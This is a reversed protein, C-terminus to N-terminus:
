DRKKVVFLPLFFYIALISFCLGGITGAALPYWFGEKQSGILFPVFGLITSVITLFIPIIKANWAKVYLQLSNLHPFREELNNYENIIYISANVTLGCLLIFSAFGGQDFNLKFYYFTLFVGIYSIPIVCLVAIPQKLSNFLIATTFFIIIIILFLLFYQKKEKEWSWRYASGKASYGMPLTPIFADLTKEQSKNGGVMSGIYEYQLFIRYQQDIKCVDKPAQSKEMTTIDGIKFKKNGTNMEVNMMNWLDYDSRQKSTLSVTEPEKDVIIQGAYEDKGFIPNIGAFLEMPTIDANALLERDPTLIFEQYDDKWYSMQSNIFVEKIRRHELLMKKLTEAHSYLEDYNYGRMEVSYNGATERVDNSFGQDKLGYVGWSGGGLTLAHSVVGSKLVYPFNSNEFEPKFFVSISARNPNYVSTQFQKIEKYESLYAEMKQVLRNMQELTTGNPMNAYISLVLEENRTFYSGEYVKKVFLRLAGGTAPDLVPRIKDKYFGSGITKNYLEAYPKKEDLKEPLLFLPLGFALLLLIIVAVRFRVLFRITKAYILTFYVPLRKNQMWSFRKNRIKTKRHLSLDIKEILSPVFFLAVFLSIFLNVIVVAAFDLLNLRVEDDLFFVIMLAGITTLTAALISLFAKLNKRHLLHDTMVITNDIILSLSITIGALSYLQIELGLIWYLIFAISLNVILSVIILFLYKWSRTILLVFLLLILITFGSRVYIKHLEKGIFETADYSTYIQYGEPLDTKVKDMVTQIQQGLRIQNAQEEATINLYIASMGNIRYYSRPEVEEHVVKVLQDLSLLNHNKDRLHISSADFKDSESDQKLVIRIQNPDGDTLPAVGLFSNRYHKSIAEKIQTVTLGHEKLLDNDYYINWQMPQAGSIDISYIGPIKLLEPKITNEVYRSIDLPTSPANVTFSLFPRNAKEDPRRVSVVPYTANEPMLPWMQRVITSAEFRAIDMSTHKDFSINVRGWGNGSTSEISKVGKMRALMAELKSTVEIEVIRSSSGNMNFSVSLSPLVQSPALKVPLLPLFSLGVLALALFLVIWTFSSIKRKEKM